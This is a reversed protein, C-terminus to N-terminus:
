RRRCTRSVAAYSLWVMPDCLVVENLGPMEGTDNYPYKSELIAPTVVHEVAWVSEVGAAECIELAAPIDSPTNWATSAFMLGLTPLTM